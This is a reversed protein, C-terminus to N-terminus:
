AHDRRQEKRLEGRRNAIFEIMKKAQERKEVNSHITLENWRKYERTLHKLKEGITMEPHLGLLSDVDVVDHLDVPLIKDRMERFKRYDLDLWRGASMLFRMEDEAGLGDVQAIRLCLEMADYRAAVAEEQHLQDCVKKLSLGKRTLKEEADEKARELDEQLRRGLSLPLLRCRDEIWEDVVSDECDDVSGDCACMMVALQVTAKLVELTM